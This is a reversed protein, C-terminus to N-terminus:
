KIIGDLERSKLDDIIKDIIELKQNISLNSNTLQRRIITVHFENVIPALSYFCTDNNMHIIIKQPQNKSM